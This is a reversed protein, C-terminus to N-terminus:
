STLKGNEKTTDSNHQIRVSEEAEITNPVAELKIVHVLTRFHELGETTEEPQGGTKQTVGLDVSYADGTETEAQIEVLGDTDEEHKPVAHLDTTGDISIHSANTLDTGRREKRKKKEEKEEFGMREIGEASM